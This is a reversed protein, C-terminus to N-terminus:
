GRVREHPEQWPVNLIQFIEEETESAILTGTPIGKNLKVRRNRPDRVVGGFLGRQNLSYGLVNAKMRMARNFIDDGTYYLLAAGRSAWPVTLFDIRRRKADGRDPIRCLGRYIAELDDPDEPLALDETLIGIKHLKALLKSLVGAHTTGDDPPRTILIDIDGCDVKGRRYSGMIEVFLRHDIELAIPKILEFIEKAEERPMRDNIDDYFRIGIEQAPSLKVGGKGAIVDALSRCGAAYWQYATSQGVGYVGQFIKTTKIDDTREYGIRRLGGTEIIEMIKAATKEGVGRIARAEAFSAIRKPHNRLARICKSYSFVRWRDDDGLKAAHLAKLEELKDIIDQNACTKRQTEKTDCTWGRKTPPGYAAAPEEVDSDSSPAESESVEGEAEARAKVYFEALPDDNNSAKNLGAEEAVSSSSAARSRRGQDPQGPSAPPSLLAGQARDASIHSFDITDSTRAKGKESARPQVKMGADIRQAFAAHWFVPDDMPMKANKNMSSFGTLVWDWTVTPIHDPIESLDKLGLARLTAPVKADTVIHTAISADYRPLLNGGHRVILDMRGRTRESAYTMDGGTYFLNMGHLFKYNSVPADTGTAAKKAKVKDVLRQAYEEPTVPAPKGKKKGKTGKSKMQETVEKGKGKTVTTAPYSPSKGSNCKVSTVAGPPSSSRPSSSASSVHIISEDDEDTADKSMTAVTKSPIKILKDRRRAAIRQKVELYLSPAAQLSSESDITSIEDIPSTPPDPTRSTTQGPFAFIKLNLAPIKGLPATKSVQKEKIPTRHLPDKRRSDPSDSFSSIDAIEEISPSPPSTMRTDQRKQSSLSGANQFTQYKLKPSTRRSTVSTSPDPAYSPSYPECLSSQDHVCLIDQHSLASVWPSNSPFLDNKPLLASHEKDQLMSSAKDRSTREDEHPNSEHYVHLASSSTSFTTAFKWSNNSTSTEPHLISQEQHSVDEALFSAELTDRLVIAEDLSPPHSEAPLVTVKSPNLHESNLSTTEVDQHEIPETSIPMPQMGRKHLTREETQTPPVKRKRFQLSINQSKDLLSNPEAKFAEISDSIVLNISNTVSTNVKAAGGHPRQSLNDTIKKSPAIVHMKGSMSSVHEVDNGSEGQAQPYDHEKIKQEHFINRSSRHIGIRQLYDDIDEDPMSMREDQERYYVDLNM